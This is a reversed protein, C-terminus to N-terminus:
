SSNTGARPHGKKPNIRSKFGMVAGPDPDASPKWLVLLLIIIITGLVFFGSCCNTRAICPCSCIKKIETGPALARRHRGPGESGGVWGRRCQWLCGWCCFFPVYVVSTCRAGWGGGGGGGGHVWGRGM